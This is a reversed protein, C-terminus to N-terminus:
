GRLTHYGAIAVVRNHYPRIHFSTYPGPFRRAPEGTSVITKFRPDLDYIQVVDIPPLHTTQWQLNTIGTPRILPPAAPPPDNKTCGCAAVAVLTGLLAACVSRLMTSTRRM